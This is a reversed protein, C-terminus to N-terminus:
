MKVQMPLINLVIQGNKLFLSNIRAESNVMIKLVNIIVWKKKM